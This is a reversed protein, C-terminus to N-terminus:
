HRWVLWRVILDPLPSTLLMGLLVAAWILLVARLHPGIRM